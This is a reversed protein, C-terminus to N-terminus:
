NTAAPPPALVPFGAKKFIARAKAGRLFALFRAPAEGKATATLAIPYVIDPHSGRPFTAIVVVEPESLADTAYVIGLPAEGRAVFKLAVRVNEAGAIRGELARWLGLSELAAKAYRGAPVSKVEGTSLRGDEGLAAAFRAADLSFAPPAANKPAIVVLSNGLLDLRTGPDVLRREALYDMWAADASIVIDAPAGAEVQKALASSAAFSFVPKGGGDAAYADGAEELVSKLSAAAFVVVEEAGARATSLPSLAAALLWSFLVLRRASM